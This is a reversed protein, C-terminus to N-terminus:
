NKYKRLEPSPCTNHGSHRGSNIGYTYDHGTVTVLGTYKFNAVNKFSNKVKQMRCGLSNTVEGFSQYNNLLRCLM